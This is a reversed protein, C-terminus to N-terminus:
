RASRWLLSPREDASRSAAPSVALAPKEASVAAMPSQGTRMPRFTAPALPRDQGALSGPAAIDLMQRQMIAMAGITARVADLHRAQAFEAYLPDNALLVCDLDPQETCRFTTQRGFNNGANGYSGFDDDDKDLEWLAQWTSPMGEIPEVVAALTLDATERLLNEFTGDAARVDVCSDGIAARLADVNVAFSNFRDSTSFRWWRTTFVPVVHSPTTADQLYNVLRGLNTFRRSLDQAAQLRRLSDRFSNHMRTELLWLFRGAAHRSRDYYNWRFLRQWWPTEAQNANAKAIYRVQLPTLRAFPTDAICQNYQRAAVFTLQQHVAGEYASAQNAALAVALLLTARCRGIRSFM